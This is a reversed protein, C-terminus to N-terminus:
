NTGTGSRFGHLSSVRGPTSWGHSADGDGFWCCSADSDACSNGKWKFLARTGFSVSVTLKVEGCEGFLPDGFATGGWGRKRERTFSVTRPLVALISCQKTMQSRNLSM